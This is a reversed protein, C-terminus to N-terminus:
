AIEAFGLHSLARSAMDSATEDGGMLDENLRKIMGSLTKENAHHQIFDAIREVEIQLIERSSPTAM